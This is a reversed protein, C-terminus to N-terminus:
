FMQPCKTKLLMRFDNPLRRLDESTAPVNGSIETLFFKIPIINPRPDYSLGLFVTDSDDRYFSAVTKTLGENAAIAHQRTRPPACTM